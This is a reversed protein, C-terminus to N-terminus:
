PVSHIFFISIPHNQYIKIANLLLYHNVDDSSTNKCVKPWLLNADRPRICCSSAFFIWQIECQKSGAFSRNRRLLSLRKRQWLAHLQLHFAGRGVKVWYGCWWKERSGVLMQTADWTVSSWQLLKVQFLCWARLHFPCPDVQSAFQKLMVEFSIDM